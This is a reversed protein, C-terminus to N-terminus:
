PYNEQGLLGAHHGSPASHQAAGPGLPRDGRAVGQRRVSCDTALLLFIKCVDILQDAITIAM